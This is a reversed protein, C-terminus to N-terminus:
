AERLQWVMIGAAALGAAGTALGGAVVVMSIGKCLPAVIGFPLVSVGGALYVRRARSSLGLVICLLGLVFVASPAAADISLGLRKIWLLFMITGTGIIAMSAMDFLRENRSGISKKLKRARYIGAVGALLLLPVIGLRVIVRWSWGGLVFGVLVAGAVAATLLIGRKRM